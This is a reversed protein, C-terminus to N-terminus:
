ANFWADVRHMTTNSNELEFNVIKSNV